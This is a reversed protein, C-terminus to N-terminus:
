SPGSGFHEEASHPRERPPVGDLVGHSVAEASSWKPYLISFKEVETMSLLPTYSPLFLQGQLHGPSNRQISHIPNERDKPPPGLNVFHRPDLHIHAHKTEAADNCNDKQGEPQRRRLIAGEHRRSTKASSECAEAGSCHQLVFSRHERSAHLRKFVTYGFRSRLM